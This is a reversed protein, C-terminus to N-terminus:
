QKNFYALVQLETSLDVHRVDVDEPHSLTTPAFSLISRIGAAVLRDVVEQAATAPVTVIAMSVDHDAIDTELDAVDSVTISEFAMGIREPRVDYVGVLEFGAAGFGDYNALAHGFHGAGVIIVAREEASGLEGHLRAILDAVGYGVGRTGTIGLDSMDRRVIADKVAAGTALQQSSVTATHEDLGELYALYKPLRAITTRAVRKGATVSHLTPRDHAAACLMRGSWKGPTGGVM